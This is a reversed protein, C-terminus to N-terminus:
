STTPGPGSSNPTMGCKAILFCTYPEAIASNPAAIFHIAPMKAAVSQAWAQAAGGM